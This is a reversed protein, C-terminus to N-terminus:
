VSELLFRIWSTGKSLAPPILLLIVAGNGKPFYFYSIGMCIACIVIPIILYGLLYLINIKKIKKESM